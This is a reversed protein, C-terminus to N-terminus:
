KYIIELFRSKGISETLSVFGSILVIWIHVRHNRSRKTFLSIFTSKIHECSLLRVYVPGSHLDPEPRIDKLWFIIYTTATLFIAMTTIFVTTYNTKDLFLGGLTNSLVGALPVMASLIGLRVTRNTEETIASLYSFCGMLCIIVGGTVGMAVLPIFLLPIPFPGNHITFVTYALSAILAGCCPVILALKRSVRDGWSGIFLSSIVAPLSITIAFYKGWQSAAEQVVNEETIYSANKLNECIKTDNSFVSECIKQYVLAQHATYMLWFGLMYLFLVPEVTVLRPSCSIAM